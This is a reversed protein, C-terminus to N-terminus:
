QPDKDDSGDAEIPLIGHEVLRRYLHDSGSQLWREYTRLLDQDRTITQRESIETLLDVLEVFKEALEAYMETTTTDDVLSSLNSYAQGGISMYYDLDCLKSGLSDSFFGSTYLTSDGIQRLQEIQQSRPLKQLTELFREAYSRNDDSLHKIHGFRNLLEVIYYNTTDRLELQRAHVAEDLLEKFFESLSAQRILRRHRDRQSGM